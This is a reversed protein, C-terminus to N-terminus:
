LGPLDCGTLLKMYSTELESIFFGYRRKIQLWKQAQMCARDKKAPQWVTIDNAGKQSNNKSSTIVLNDLDNYFKQKQIKEWNYGGWVHAMKVPVVHDIQILNSDTIFEGTYFDEWKGNLARCGNKSLEVKTLSREILIEHRTNQCDRDYDAWQGWSKRNYTPINEKEAAQKVHQQHTPRQACNMAVTSLTLIFIIKLKQYM